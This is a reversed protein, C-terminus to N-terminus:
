AIQYRKLGISIALTNNEAYFASDALELIFKVLSEVVTQKENHTITFTMDMSKIFVNDTVAPIRYNDGRLVNKNLTMGITDCFMAKRVDSSFLAACNQVAESIENVRLYNLLIYEKEKNEM